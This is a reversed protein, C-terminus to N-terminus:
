QKGADDRHELEFHDVGTVGPVFPLSRGLQVRDGYAAISMRDQVLHEAVVNQVDEATVALIQEGITSFESLPLRAAYVRALVALTAENSALVGNLIGLLRRKATDLEAPGVRETRLRALASLVAELADDARYSDVAFTIWFTGHSEWADCEAHVGYGLGEDHRIATRTRSLQLNALVMAAVDLEIGDPHSARVCPFAIAFWAQQTSGAILQIRGAPNRVPPPSQRPPPSAAESPARWDGFHHETAQSVLELTTAGVAILASGMPLYREKWFRRVQQASIGDLSSSRLAATALPHHAGYLRSLASSALQRQISLAAGFADNRADQKANDLATADFLPARSLSALLSVPPEVAHSLTTVALTTGDFNAIVHPVRGGVSLNRRIEGDPLRTGRNLLEATLGALGPPGGDGDRANRNVYAMSITPLDPREVVILEMGNSLVATRLVPFALRSPGEFPPATARFPADPTPTLPM